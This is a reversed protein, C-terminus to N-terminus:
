PFKTLASNLATFFIVWMDNDARKRKKNRNNATQDMPEELEHAGSSQANALLILSEPVAGAEAATTELIEKLNEDFAADRSNM